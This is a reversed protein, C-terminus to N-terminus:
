SWAGKESQKYYKLEYSQAKYKTYLDRCVEKQVQNHEYFIIMVRSFKEINEFGCGICVLITSNNINNEEHTILIPQQEPLPDDISGHPIFSKQAFTWLTKNMLEQMDHNETKVLTREGTQYCKELLQCISKEFISSTVQYFSINTM